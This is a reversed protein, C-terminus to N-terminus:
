EDAADSTYLLCTGPPARGPDSAGRLDMARPTAISFETLPMRRARDDGPASAIDYSLARPGESQLGWPRGGSAVGAVPPGDAAAARAPAGIAALGTVGGRPGFIPTAASSPAADARRERWDRGFVEESLENWLHRSWTSYAVQAPAEAELDVGRYRTRIAAFGRQWDNWAAEGESLLWEVLAERLTAAGCLEDLQEPTLPARSAM